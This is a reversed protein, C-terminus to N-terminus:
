IVEFLKGPLPRVVGQMEMNFLITALRYVPINNDLAISDMYRKGSNL